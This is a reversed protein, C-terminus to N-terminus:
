SINLGGTQRFSPTDHRLYFQVRSQVRRQQRGISSPFPAARRSNFAGARSRNYTIVVTAGKAALDIAVARGIGASGGTVLAITGEEFLKM